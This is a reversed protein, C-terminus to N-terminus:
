YQFHGVRGGAIESRALPRRDAKLSHSFVTARNRPLLEEIRSLVQRLWHEPDRGGVVAVPHEQTEPTSM